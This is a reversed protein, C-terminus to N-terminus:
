PLSNILIQKYISYGLLCKKVYDRTENFPILAIFSDEDFDKYRKLWREVNLPGGNYAALALVESGFKEIMDKFYEIGFRINVEPRLLEQTKFQSYELTKAIMEGTSPMIQMLGLAGAPSIAEPNFWSEQRIISLTWFIDGDQNIISVGYRTPYLLKLLELPIDMKEKLARRKIKEAYLISYNDLGYDALIKSIRYLFLPNDEEIGKIEGKGEDLLGAKMFLKARELKLSDSVKLTYSTDSWQSFWEIIDQNPFPKERLKVGIYTYNSNLEQYLSDAIEPKGVREETKALFYICEEGRGRKLVDEAEKLRGQNMLIVGARLIAREKRYKDAIKLYVACASDMEGRDELILGVQFLASPALSSKPFKLALNRFKRIAKDVKGQRLLIRAELYKCRPSYANRLVKLAKKLKLERLYIRALMYRVKNHYRGRPRRRLYNILYRKARKSDFHYYVKALSYYEQPTSNKLKKALKFAYPSKPFKRIFRWAERKDILGELYSKEVSKPIKSLYKKIERKDEQTLIDALLRRAKPLHLIPTLLKKSKEFDKLKYFCYAKRLSAYEKLPESLNDYYDIAEKYRGLKELCFAKTLPPIYPLKLAEEYRKLNLLVLPLNRLSDQLKSFSEYALEYERQDLYIEYLRKYIERQLSTDQTTKLLEQYYKFAILSPLKEIRKMPEVREPVRKVEKVCLLLFCFFVSSLTRIGRHM